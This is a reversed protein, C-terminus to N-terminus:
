KKIKVRRFTAYGRDQLSKLTQRKLEANGNVINSYFKDRHLIFVVGNYDARGQKVVTVDIQTKEHNVKYLLTCEEPTRYKRSVDVEDPEIVHVPDPHNLNM